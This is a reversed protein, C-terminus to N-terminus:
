DLFSRVLDHYGPPELLFSDHGWPSTLETHEVSVGRAALQDRIRLSHATPFRWDSDFSVLRFRTSPVADPHTGFPDFYDMPRTLHLYSLADFRDLFSEGQHQLYHEVEFDTGLRRDLGTTDRRHGFKTELSIDSVYTIHAMMRAIKLGHRPTVGHEAYRGGHFDPDEMIAARAVSSFAINETTLRSSAAVLVARDIRDPERLAWELIQMGGMSGGVAAHLRGVGLHDLLRRHAAVFDAMDLAPFDPGYARGTAPDISSPGTTGSCGGLLNASVVFFRDTDVAKGPGILNDWWGRRKAGLHLGAAHADGTLAHCVMVANDRAANLEGYTEYAVEVHELAAGGTLVLPDRETALVVRQTEVYGM